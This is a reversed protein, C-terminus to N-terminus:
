TLSYGDARVVTQWGGNKCDDATTAVSIANFKAAPSFGLWGTDRRFINVGGVNATGVNLSEYPGPQGIPNYGWSNTNFAVGFVFEDPLTLAM